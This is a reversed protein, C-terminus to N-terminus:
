QTKLDGWVVPLKEAAEVSLGIEFNQNVEDQTLPRNYIRVEDIIGSFFAEPEGRNNGAGLYVPETFPIFTIPSGRHRSLSKRQGDIFIATERWEQGDEDVYPAGIVHVLHHWQGDSIPFRRGSTLHGCAPGIKHTLYLRIVDKTFNIEEDFDPGIRIFFDALNAPKLPVHRPLEAWGNLDIGWGTACDADRVKFLTTWNKKYSTKVWAEFTSTSLQSGFDGLNTLNVYDNAGDFELAGNVRGQVKRAGVRKADNEGWVDKVTNGDINHRDFTWYSVLGDTVFPQTYGKYSFLTLTLVITLLYLLRKM